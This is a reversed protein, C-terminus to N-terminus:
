QHLPLASASIIVATMARVSLLLMLQDAAAVAHSLQHDCSHCCLQQKSDAAAMLPQSYAAISSLQALAALLEISLQLLQSYWCGVVAALPLLVALPRLLMPMLQTLPQLLSSDVAAILL